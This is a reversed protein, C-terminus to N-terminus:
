DGAAAARKKAKKPVVLGRSLRRLVKKLQRKKYREHSSDGEENATATAADMMQFEVLAFVVRGLEEALKEDGPKLLHDIRLPLDVIFNLVRYDKGSFENHPPKERAELDIPDQLMAALEEVRPHAGIVQRFKLLTNQTQGPVSYNFPFLHETLWLLAPAIQERNELVIRYRVRDFIQAAVSERKALLKTILSGRSKVNGSFELLPIGAARMAAAAEMVRRDVMLSVEAERAAIRFLLERAELHNVVHMCKAVVCAIRRYKPLTLGSAMLFVDRVDTPNSVVQAVRYGFASRLYEVAQGLIGRLRREDGPEAVDYLHLKLFRDVDERTRFNLRRWDIVSGGRLVLRIAELDGVSMAEVSKLGGGRDGSQWEIALSHEGIRDCFMAAAAPGTL